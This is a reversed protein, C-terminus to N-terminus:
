TQHSVSPASLSYCAHLMSLILRASQIYNWRDSLYITYYTFAGALSIWCLFDHQRSTIGGIPLIDITPFADYSVQIWLGTAAIFIQSPAMLM